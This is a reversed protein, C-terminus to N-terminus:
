IPPYKEEVKEYVKLMVNGEVSQPKLCAQFVGVYVYSGNKAKAFTIRKSYDYKLSQEENWSIKDMKWYEHIYKKGITNFWKESQPVKEIWRHHTIFWVSYGEPTANSACMPQGQAFVTHLHKKWGWKEAECLYIKKSNTGYRCHLELGHRLIGTGEKNNDVWSPIVTEEAPLVGDKKILPIEKKDNLIKTSKSMLCLEESKQRLDLDAFCLTKAKIAQELLYKQELGCRFRVIVYPEEHHVIKAQEYAQVNKPHFPSPLVIMYEGVLSTSQSKKVDKSSSIESSFTPNQVPKERKEKQYLSLNRSNNKQIQDSNMRFVTVWLSVVIIAGLVLLFVAGEM